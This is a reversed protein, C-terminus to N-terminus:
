RLLLDVRCEPLGDAHFQDDPLVTAVREDVVADLLRGVSEDGFTFTWRNM